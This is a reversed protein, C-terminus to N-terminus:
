RLGKEKYYRLAGPHIEEDKFYEKSPVAIAASMAKGVPTYKTFEEAQECLLKAILYALEDPTEDFGGIGLREEWCMTDQAPVNEAISGKPMLVPIYLMKEEETAENIFKEDVSIFRPAGRSAVIEAYAPIPMWPGSECTTVGLAGVDATGDLLGNQVATWNAYTPKMDESGPIARKLINWFHRGSSSLVSTTIFRKGSMDAVTKIDDDYTILTQVNQAVFGILKVNKVPKSYPRNGQIADVYSTISTAFVTKDPKQSAKLLSAPSGTTEVPLLEFQPAQQKIIESLAFCYQYQTGGFIGATIEFREAAQASLTTCALIGLSAVVHKLM